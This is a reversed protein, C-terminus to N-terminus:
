AKQEWGGTDTQQWYTLTHSTGKYAKYRARAANLAADDNGDFLDCCLAFGDADAPVSEELRNCLVLIEAGNPNDNGSTLFVPQLSATSDAKSSHPLFSDPTYIWLHTDFHAVSAPDPLRVVAKRGNAIAKTLIAPLARETTQTLLHYFRIESM